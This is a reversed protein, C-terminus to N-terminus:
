YFKSGVVVLIVVGREKDMGVRIEGRGGKSRGIKPYDRIREGGLQTDMMYTIKNYGGLDNDRSM